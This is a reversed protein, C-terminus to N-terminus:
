LIFRKLFPIKGMLKICGYSIFFVVLAILPVSVIPIVVLTNLGWKWLLFLILVHILYIGFSYTSFELIWKQTRESFSRHQCMEKVLLFVALSAFLVNPTLYEYLLKYPEGAQLSRISTEIITTLVGLVGFAYITKKVKESLTFRNLYYGAFFYGVYGFTIDLDLGREPNDMITTTSSVPFSNYTPIIFGIVFCFLLLYEITKKDEAIKRLFPVMVYIEVIRFLFWLHFHGEIFATYMSKMVEINLTRYENLTFIVAYLASWFLFALVVRFINKRYLKKIPVEKDPNLFFMGSLMFFLPVSVRALGNYGNLTQWQVSDVASLGFDRSSIHIVIVLFVAIVRLIDAYLIREKM